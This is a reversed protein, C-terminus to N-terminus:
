SYSLLLIGTYAINYANEDFEVQPKILIYLIHQFQWKDKWDVSSFSDWNQLWKMVSLSLYLTEMCNKKALRSRGDLFQNNAQHNLTVWLVMTKQHPLSWETKGRSWLWYGIFQCSNPTLWSLGSTVMANLVLEILQQGASAEKVFM